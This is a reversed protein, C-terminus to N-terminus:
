LSSHLRERRRELALLLPQQELWARTEDEVEVLEQHARTLAEEFAEGFAERSRRDLEAAREDERGAAVMACILSARKRCFALVTEVAALPMTEIEHEVGRKDIWVQHQRFVWRPMVGPTHRPTTEDRKRAPDPTPQAAAITAETRPMMPGLPESRESYHREDPEAYVVLLPEGTPQGDQYGNGSRLTAASGPDDLMGLLALLDRRSLIVTVTGGDLELRM